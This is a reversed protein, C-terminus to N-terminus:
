SLHMLISYQKLKEFSFLWDNLLNATIDTITTTYYILNGHPMREKQRRSLCHLTKTPQFTCPIYQQPKFGGSGSVLQIVREAEHKM